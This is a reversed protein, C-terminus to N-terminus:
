GRPPKRSKKRRKDFHDTAPLDPNVPDSRAQVMATAAEAIQPLRTFDGNLLDDAYKPLQTAVRRVYSIFATEGPETREYYLSGIVASPDAAYVITNMSHTRAADFRVIGRFTEDKRLVVLKVGLFADRVDYVIVVALGTKCYMVTPTWRLSWRDLKRAIQTFSYDTELFNFESTLVNIANISM